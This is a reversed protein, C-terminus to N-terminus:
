PLRNPIHVEKLAANQQRVRPKTLELFCTVLLKSELKVPLCCDHSRYTSM